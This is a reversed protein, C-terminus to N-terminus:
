SEINKHFTKGTEITAILKIQKYSSSLGALFKLFTWCQMTWACVDAAFSFAFRTAFSFAFSIMMKRSRVAETGPLSIDIIIM